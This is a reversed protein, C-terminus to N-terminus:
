DQRSTYDPRMSLSPLGPLGPLRDSFLELGAETVVADLPIDHPQPHISAVRALEFGVGISLPLPVLSALTRDFYGSGYGIRFGRDDFANVPILLMDPILAAGSTPFHIGHRDTAMISDPRWEHFDM